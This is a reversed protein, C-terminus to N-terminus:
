ECCFLVAPWYRAHADGLVRSRNGRCKHTNENIGQWGQHHYLSLRYFTTTLLLRTREERYSRTAILPESRASLLAQWVSLKLLGWVAVFGTKTRHSVGLWWTYLGQQADSYILTEIPFLIQPNKISFFYIKLPFVPFTNYIHPSRSPM